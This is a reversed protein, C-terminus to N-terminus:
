PVRALRFAGLVKDLASLGKQGVAKAGSTIAQGPSALAGRVATGVSGLGEPVNGTAKGLVDEGYKATQLNAGYGGSGKIAQHLKYGGIGAAAGGGAIAAGKLYDPPDDDSRFEIIRDLGQSLQILREVKQM